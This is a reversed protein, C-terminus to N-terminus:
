RVAEDYEYLRQSYDPMEIKLSYNRDIDFTNASLDELPIIIDYFRFSLTLLSSRVKSNNPSNPSSVRSVTWWRM